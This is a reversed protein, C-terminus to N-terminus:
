KIRTKEKSLSEILNKYKRRKNTSRLSKDKTNYFRVLIELSNCHMVTNRISVITFVKDIYDNINDVGFHLNRAKLERHIDKQQDPVLGAYVTLLVGLSLHDFFCYIDAYDNIANKLNDINKNMKELREENYSSNITIQIKLKDLFHILKDSDSLDNKTLIINSIIAKFKTEFALINAAIIPYKNRENIYLDYYEKFDVDREYIHNGNSDKIVENKYKKAFRHKYPTIVNIYNYKLLIEEAEKKSIENFVVRKNSELYEVQEKVTKSPKYTHM